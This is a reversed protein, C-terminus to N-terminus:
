QEIDAAIAIKEVGALRIQDLVAVFIGNPSQKDVQIIVTGQPNELHLREVSSRVARIDVRHRDIWVEGTADIAVIITAHEQVVATEAVSSQISVGTEKIFSATVIFFILMIFMVDIMPTLNIEALNENAPRSRRRRM